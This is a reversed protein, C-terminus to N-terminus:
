IIVQNRLVEIGDMISSNLLRSRAFSTQSKSSVRYAPGLPAGIIQGTQPDQVVVGNSSFTLPFGLETLQGVSLLNHTLQPIHYVNSVSLNPTSITGQHSVHMSSGNATYITPLSSPTHSPIVNPSSSM